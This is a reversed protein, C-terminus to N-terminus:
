NCTISTLDCKVYKNNYVSEVKCTVAVNTGKGKGLIDKIKRDAQSLAEFYFIANHRNSSIYNGGSIYYNFITSYGMYNTAYYIFGDFSITRNSYYNVFKQVQSATPDNSCMWDISPHWYTTKQPVIVAGCQGCHKGETKGNTTESAPVAVDIIINTHNSSDIPTQHQEVVITQCDDCYLGDSIGTSVCTAAIGAITHTHIHNSSDIPIIESVSLTTKCDNCRIGETRGPSVCTAEIAETVDLHKHNNTNLETSQSVSLIEGCIECHSGETRGKVVCTAECEEVDIVKQHGKAPIEVHGTVIKGCVTCCTGPTWGPDTCTPEVAPMEKCTHELGNTCYDGAITHYSIQINSYIDFFSYEYFSIADNVTFRDTDNYNYSSISDCDKMPNYTINKFGVNKIMEGTTLKDIGSLENAFYMIPLQGDVVETIMQSNPKKSHVDIFVVSKIDFYNDAYFKTVGNIRVSDVDDESALLGIIIDGEFNIKFNKFGVQKFKKIISEYDKNECEDSDIQVQIQGADNYIPEIKSGEFIDCGCLCYCSCALFLTLLALNSRKM